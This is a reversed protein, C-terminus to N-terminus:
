FVFEIRQKLGNNLYSLQINFLNNKVTKELIIKNFPINKFDKSKVFTDM